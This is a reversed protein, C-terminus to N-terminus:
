PMYGKDAEEVVKGDQGRNRKMQAIVPPLNWYRLERDVSGYHLDAFFSREHGRRLATLQELKRAALDFKPSDSPINRFPGFCAALEGALRAHQLGTQLFAVRQRFEPEGKEVASAAQRLLKEAPPFCAPPFAEHAFQIFRAWRHGADIYLNNFKEFNAIRLGTSPM